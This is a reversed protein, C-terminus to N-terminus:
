TLSPTQTKRWCMRPLAKNYAPVQVRSCFATEIAPVNRTTNEREGSSTSGVVVATEIEPLIVSFLLLFYKWTGETGGYDVFVCLLIQM